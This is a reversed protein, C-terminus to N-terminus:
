PGGYMKRLKARIPLVVGFATILPICYGIIAPIGGKAVLMNYIGHYTIALTLLGITGAIQLWTKDLLYLLGIGVIAGCVVHMAGTGFGRILLLMFHEAGNQSLYCANELTAFGVATMLVGGSMGEMDPEFVLLYFLIPCMKMIEEVFPAVELAAAMGDVHLAAALFTSIYSSLLCVTMGSFVFLMMRRGRTRICLVAILIPAALCVYINEIYSM